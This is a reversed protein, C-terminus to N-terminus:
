GPEGARDRRANGSWWCDRAAGIAGLAGSVGAGCSRGAAFAFEGVLVIGAFSWARIRDPKARWRPQRAGPGRARVMRWCPRSRNERGFLDGRRVAGPLLGLGV